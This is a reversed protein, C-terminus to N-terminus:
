TTRLLAMKNSSNMVFKQQRKKSKLRLLVPLMPTKNWISEFQSQHKKLLTLAKERKLDCVYKSRTLENANIFAHLEVIQHELDKIRKHASGLADSPPSTAEKRAYKLSGANGDSLHSGSRKHGMSTAQRSPKYLSIKPTLLYKTVFFATWQHVM